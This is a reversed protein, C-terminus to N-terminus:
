RGPLIGIVDIHALTTGKEAHEVRQSKFEKYRM